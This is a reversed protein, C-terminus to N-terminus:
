IGQLGVESSWGFPPFAHREPERLPEQKLRTPHLRPNPLQHEPTHQGALALGARCMMSSPPHWVRGDCLAPRSVLLALFWTDASGAFLQICHYAQRSPDLLYRGTACVCALDLRALTTSELNALKGLCQVVSDM